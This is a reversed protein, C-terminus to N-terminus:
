PGGGPCHPPGGGPKPYGGGGDRPGPFHSSMPPAAAAATTITRTNTIATVDFDPLPGAFRAAPARPLLSSAAIRAIISLRAADSDVSVDPRSRSYKQAPSRSSNSEKSRPPSSRGDVAPGAVSTGSIESMRTFPSLAVARALTLPTALVMCKRLSPPLHFNQRVSAGSNESIGRNPLHNPEAVVFGP